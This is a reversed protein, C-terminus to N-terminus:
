EPKSAEQTDSLDRQFMKLDRLADEKVRQITKHAEPEKLQLKNKHKALKSLLSKLHKHEM